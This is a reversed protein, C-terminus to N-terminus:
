VEAFTQWAAKKETAHQCARGCLSRCKFGKHIVLRAKESGNPSSRDGGILIKRTRDIHLGNARCPRWIGPIAKSNLRIPLRTQRRVM